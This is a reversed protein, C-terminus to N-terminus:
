SSKVVFVLTQDEPLGSAQVTRSGASVPISAVQGTYALVDVTAPDGAVTADELQLEFSSGSCNSWHPRNQWATVQLM